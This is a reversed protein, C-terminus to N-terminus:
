SCSSENSCNLGVVPEGAARAISWFPKLLGALLLDLVGRLREGHRLGSGDGTTQLLLFGAGMGEKMRGNSAISNVMLGSQDGSSATQGM